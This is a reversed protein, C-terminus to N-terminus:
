RFLDKIHIRSGAPSFEISIVECFNGHPFWNKTLGAREHEAAKGNEKKGGGDESGGERGPIRRTM